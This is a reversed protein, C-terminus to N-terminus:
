NPGPMPPLMWHTTHEVGVVAALLYGLALV